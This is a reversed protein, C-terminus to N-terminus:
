DPEWYRMRCHLDSEGRVGYSRCAWRIRRWFPIINCEVLPAKGNEPVLFVIIICKEEITKLSSPYKIM